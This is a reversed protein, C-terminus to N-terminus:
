EVLVKIWQCRETMEVVRPEGVLTVVWITAFSQQPSQPLRRIQAVMRYTEDVITSVQLTAANLTYGDQSSCRLNCFQRSSM